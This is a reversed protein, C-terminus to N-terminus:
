DRLRFRVPLVEAGTNGSDPLWRAEGAPALGTLRRSLCTFAVTMDIRAVAHGLCYHIGGGFGHHPTRKRTIDFPADAYVAPDNGTSAAFLHITTGRAIDLGKFTFDEAAERTVWTTTPKLRMVEEVALAALAPQAALLEWQGPHAMFLSLGLSLQNRTTDIGGFILLVVMDRLEEDSLRDGAEAAAVLASLLDDVPAARRAAILRDAYAFLEALAHEVRGLEENFHVGLAQGMDAAWQTIVRWEHDPIGVLLCVVRAAYAEAFETVFDCEGRAAFADIVDDAIAEFKPQLPLLTRPTFSPMVLRRLRAHDVGERCLMIRSWWDKFPGAAVGNHEPWKASGQNLRQDNVLDSAEAHRLIAYGYPTRAYWSRERAAAVEASHMAFAPSAVDLYPANDQM